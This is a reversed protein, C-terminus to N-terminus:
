QLHEEWEGLEDELVGVEDLVEAKAGTRVDSSEVAVATKKPSPPPPQRAAETPARSTACRKRSAYPPLSCSHTTHM